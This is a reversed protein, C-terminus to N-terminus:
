SYRQNTGQGPSDMTTILVGNKEEIHLVIRLLFGQIKLKGSWEGVISEPTQALCIVSQLIIVTLLFYKKM